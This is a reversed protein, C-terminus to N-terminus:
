RFVAWSLCALSLLYLSYFANFYELNVEALILSQFNNKLRIEWVNEHRFILIYCLLEIWLPSPLIMTGKVAETLSPDIEGGNLFHQHIVEEEALCNLM